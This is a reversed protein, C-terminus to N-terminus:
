RTANLNQGKPWIRSGQIDTYWSNGRTDGNHIISLAMYVGNYNRTDIHALATLNDGRVANPRLTLNGLNYDAYPAYLTFYDNVKITPQIFAHVNMGSDTVTPNGLLGSDPTLRIADTESIQEQTVNKDKFILVGDDLGASIAFDYCIQAIVQSVTGNYSKSVVDSRSFPLKYTIGNLNCINALLQTVTINQPSISCGKDYNTADGSCYLTTVLETGQKVTTLNNIVGEFISGKYDKYGAVMSVTTGPLSLAQRMASTMNYISIEATNFSLFTASANKRIRFVIKWNQDFIFTQAINSSAGDSAPRGAIFPQRVTLRLYRDVYIM